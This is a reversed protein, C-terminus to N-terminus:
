PFQESWWWIFQGGRIEDRDVRLHAAAFGTHAEIEETKMYTNLVCMARPDCFNFHACASREFFIDVM